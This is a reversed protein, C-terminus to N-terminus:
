AYSVACYVHKSLPDREHDWQILHLHNPCYAYEGYTWNMCPDTEESEPNRGFVFCRCNRRVMPQFLGVCREMDDWSEAMFLTRYWNCLNIHFTEGEIDFCGFIKRIATAIGWPNGSQYRYCFVLVLTTLLASMDSPVVRLMDTKIKEEITTQLSPCRQRIDNMPVYGPILDFNTKTEVLLNYRDLLLTNQSLSHDLVEMDGDDPDFLNYTRTRNDLVLLTTHELREGTPAKWRWCLPIFTVRANCERMAAIKQTVHTAAKNNHRLARSKGEGGRVTLYITTDLDELTNPCNRGMSWISNLRNQIANFFPRLIHMSHGVEVQRDSMSLKNLLGLDAFYVATLHEMAIGTISPLCNDCDFPQKRKPVRKYYPVCKTAIPLAGPHTGYNSSVDRWQEWLLIRLHFPCYAYRDHPRNLCPTNRNRVLVSCIRNERVRPQFLGVRKEMEVWSKATYLSTYWNYLNLHFMEKRKNDLGNFNDRIGEAIKWPTYCQFRYCFVLVLTTLLACMGGPVLRTVNVHPIPPNYHEISTQLSRGEQRIDREIKYGPILSTTLMLLEHRNLSLKNKPMTKDIVNMIGKNPDFLNYTNRINDVVLLTSHAIHHGSPTEWNWCLPIFAIRLKCERMATIKETIQEAVQNYRIAGKNGQGGQVNLQITIDQGLTTPCGRTANWMSNLRNHIANVYPNCKYMGYDPKPASQEKVNLENLIGLDELYGNIFCEMTNIDDSCPKKRPMIKHTVNSTTTAYEQLVKTEIIPYTDDNSSSSTDDSDSPTDDNSSNPTNDSDSPTDDNSSNSTDDSDSSTTDSDSSIETVIPQNKKM